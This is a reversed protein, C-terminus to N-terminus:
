NFVGTLTEPFENFHLM